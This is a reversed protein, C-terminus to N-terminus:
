HSFTVTFSTLNVLMIWVQLLLPIIVPQKVRNFDYSSPVNRTLRGNEEVMTQTMCYALDKVVEIAERASMNSSVDGVTFGEWLPLMAWTAMNRGDVPDMSKLFPM